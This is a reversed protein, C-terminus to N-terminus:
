NLRVGQSVPSDNGGVVYITGGLPNGATFAFRPTRMASRTWWIDKGADYADHSSCISTGSLGGLLYLTAGSSAGALYARSLPLPTMPTWADALLRGPNM